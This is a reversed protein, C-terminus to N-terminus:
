RAVEHLSTLSRSRAFIQNVEAYVNRITNISPEIPVYVFAAMVKQIPATKGTIQIVHFGFVTEVVVIDGVNGKVVAENFPRVMQGDLFWGLDGGVERSGDESNAMAIETFLTRNRLIETRLSDAISKAQEKTRNQGQNAASGRFSILIHSAKLSDPRAAVDILKAMEYRGRRLEPSFYTGKPSRFLIDNWPSTFADRSLFISDFRETSVANIFNPLDQEVKFEEFLDHAHKNLAILDDETPHVDFVVFDIARSTEARKFMSKNENFYTRFDADTLTIESDPIDSYNLAAVTASAFSNMKEYMYNVYFTPAYYASSIISYYKSKLRDEKILIELDRFQIQTEVPFQDFNNIFMMVQQRNFMGTAPDSFANLVHHHVFQGYFMDNMEKNTVAVGLRKASNALLMDGVMTMWVRERVMNWDEPSLQIGDQQRRFNEGVHEVRQEFQEIKIEEGNIVAFKPIRNGGPGDGMFADQLMFGAIALGILAVVWGSHKRIKSIVAMNKDHKEHNQYFLDAFIRFFFSKTLNKSL